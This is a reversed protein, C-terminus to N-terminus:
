PVFQPIPTILLNKLRLMGPIDGGGNKRQGLSPNILCRVITRQCLTKTLQSQQASQVVLRLWTRSKGCFIPPALLTWLVHRSLAEVQIKVDTGWRNGM